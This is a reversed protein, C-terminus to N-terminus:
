KKLTLLHKFELFIMFLLYQTWSLPPHLMKTRLSIQTSSPYLDVPQNTWCILHLRATWALKSSNGWIKQVNEKEGSTSMMGKIWDIIVHETNECCLQFVTVIDAHVVQLQKPEALWKKQFTCMALKHSEQAKRCINVEGNKKQLGFQNGYIACPKYQVAM